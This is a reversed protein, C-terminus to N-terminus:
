FNKATKIVKSLGHNSIKNPTVKKISKISINKSTMLGSHKNGMRHIEDNCQFNQNELIPKIKKFNAQSAYFRAPETTYKSSLSDMEVYEIFNM